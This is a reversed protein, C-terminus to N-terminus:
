MIEGKAEKKGRQKKWEFGEKFWEKNEKYNMAQTKM